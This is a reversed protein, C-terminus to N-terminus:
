GRAARRRAHAGIRLLIAMSLRMVELKMTRVRSATERAGRATLAEAALLEGFRAEFTAGSNVPEEEECVTRTMTCVLPRGEAACSPAIEELPPEFRWLKSSSFASAASTGALATAESAARSSTSYTEGSRATLAEM